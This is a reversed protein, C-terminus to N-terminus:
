NKNEEAKKQLVVKKTAKLICRCVEYQNLKVSFGASGNGYCYRCKSKNTHEAILAMEKLKSLQQEKTGLEKMEAESYNM